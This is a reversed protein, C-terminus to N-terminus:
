TLLYLYSYLTLVPSAPLAASPDSHASSRFLFTWRGDVCTGM